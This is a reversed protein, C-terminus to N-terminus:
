LSFVGVTMPNKISARIRNDVVVVFFVCVLRTKTYFSQPFVYALVWCVPVHQDRRVRTHAGLKTRTLPASTLM